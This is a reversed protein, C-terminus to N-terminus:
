ILWPFVAIPTESPGATVPSAPQPARAPVAAAPTAEGMPWLQGHPILQTDDPGGSRLVAASGTRQMTSQWEGLMQGRPRVPSSNADDRMDSPTPANLDVFSQLDGYIDSFARASPAPAFHANYGLEAPDPAVLAEFGPYLDQAGASSLSALEQMRRRVLEESLWALGEDDSSAPVPSLEQPSGPQRAGQHHVPVPGTFPPPFDPAPVWANLEFPTM